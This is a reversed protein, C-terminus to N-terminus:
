IHAQLLIGSLEGGNMIFPALVGFKEFKRYLSDYVDQNLTEGVNRGILMNVRYCLRNDKFASEYQDVNVGNALMSQIHWVEDSGNTTYKNYIMSPTHIQGTDNHYYYYCMDIRILYGDDEYETLRDVIYNIDSDCNDLRIKFRQFIKEMEAKDVSPQPIPDDFPNM